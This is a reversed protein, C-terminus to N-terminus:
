YGCFCKEGFKLNYLVEYIIVILEKLPFVTYIGCVGLYIRLASNDILHMHVLM